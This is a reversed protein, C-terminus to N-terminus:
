RAGHGRRDGCCARPHKRSSRGLLERKLTFQVRLRDGLKEFWEGHQALESIWTQAEVRVLPEFRAQTM